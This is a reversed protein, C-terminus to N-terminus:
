PIVSPLSHLIGKIEAPSGVTSLIIVILIITVCIILIHLIRYVYDLVVTFFGLQTGLANNRDPNNKSKMSDKKAM